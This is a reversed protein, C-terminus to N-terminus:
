GGDHLPKFDRKPRLGTLKPNDPQRGLLWVRLMGPSVISEGHAQSSLEAALQELSEGNEFRTVLQALAQDDPADDFRIPILEAIPLAGSRDILRWETVGLSAAYKDADLPNNFRQVRDNLRVVFTEYNPRMETPGAHFALHAPIRKDFSELNWTATM